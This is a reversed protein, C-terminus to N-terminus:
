LGLLKIKADRQFQQDLLQSIKSLINKGIKKERQTSADDDWPGGNHYVVWHQIESSIFKLESHTLGEFIFYSKNLRRQKYYISARFIDYEDWSSTDYDSFKKKTLMWNCLDYIHYQILGSQQTTLKLNYTM